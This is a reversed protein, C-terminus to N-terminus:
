KIKKLANKKNYNINNQRRWNGFYTEGSWFRNRMQSWYLNLWCLLTLQGGRIKEFNQNSPPPLQSSKYQDWLRFKTPWNKESWLVWKPLKSKEEILDPALTDSFFIIIVLIYYHTFFYWKHCPTDFKTCTFTNNACM